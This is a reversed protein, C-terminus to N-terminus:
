KDKTNSTYEGQKHAKKSVVQKPIRRTVQVSGKKILHWAGMPNEIRNQNLRVSYVRPKYVLCSLKLYSERYGLRLAVM